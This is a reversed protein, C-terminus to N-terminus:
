KDEGLLKAWRRDWKDKDDLMDNVVRTKPEDPLNDFTKLAQTLLMIVAEPIM